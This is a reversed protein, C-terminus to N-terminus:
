LGAEVNFFFHIQSKVCNHETVDLIDLLCEGAVDAGFVGGNQFADM